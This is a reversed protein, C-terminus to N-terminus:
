IAFSKTWMKLIKKNLSKTVKMKKLISWKKQEQAGHLLVQEFSLENMSIQLVHAIDKLFKLEVNFHQIPLTQGYQLIHLLSRIHSAPFDPLFVTPSACSPVSSLLRAIVPSFLSLLSKQCPLFQQDQSVIAMDTDEHIAHDLANKLHNQQQILDSSLTQLVRVCDHM